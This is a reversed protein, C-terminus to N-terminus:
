NNEKLGSRNLSLVIMITVEGNTSNEVDPAPLEEETVAILEGFLVVPGLIAYTLSEIQMAVASRCSLSRGGRIAM